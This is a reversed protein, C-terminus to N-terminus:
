HFSAADGDTRNWLGWEILTEIYKGQSVFLFIVDTTERSVGGLITSTM